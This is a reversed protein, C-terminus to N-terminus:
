REPQRLIQVIHAAEVHLMYAAYAHIGYAADPTPPETPPQSDLVNSRPPWESSKARFNASPSLANNIGTTISTGCTGTPQASANNLMAKKQWCDHDPNIM